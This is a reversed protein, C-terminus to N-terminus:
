TEKFPQTEPFLMVNEEVPNLNYKVDNIDFYLVQIRIRRQNRVYTELQPSDYSPFHYRQGEPIRLFSYEEDPAKIPIKNGQSDIVYIIGKVAPGRGINEVFIGGMDIQNAALRHPRVSLQEREDRASGHVFIRPQILIRRALINGRYILFASIASSLAAVAAISSVILTVDIM